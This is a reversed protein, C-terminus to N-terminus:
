SLSPTRRRPSRASANAGIRVAVGVVGVAGVAGLYIAASLPDDFGDRFRAAGGALFVSVALLSTAALSTADGGRAAAAGVGAAVGLLSSAVARGALPTLPWPWWTSTPAVFLVVGAATAVVAVVALAWRRGSVARPPAWRRGGAARPPGHATATATARRAPESRRQLWWLIAVGPPAGVYVVLWLWAAFRASATTSALHLRDLHLLTAALLLAVFAFTAAVIPEARSWSPRAAAVAVPVLTAAYMAGLFTASLAPELTWAFWDTTRDPFVYLSLVAVAELPVAVVLLSRLGTSLRDSDNGIRPPEAARSM